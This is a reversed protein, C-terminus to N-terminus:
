EPRAVVGWPGGMCLGCHDIFGNGHAEGRCPAPVFGKRIFYREGCLDVAVFGRKPVMSINKQM